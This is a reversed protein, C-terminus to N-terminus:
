DDHNQKASVREPVIKVIQVHDIYTAIVDDERKELQGPLLRESIMKLARVMADRDTVFEARGEVQASRYWTIFRMDPISVDVAAVYCVAPNLRLAADRRGKKRCHFYLCNDRPDLVANVPTAYPRGDVDICSLVGWDAQALIGWAESPDLNRKPAM